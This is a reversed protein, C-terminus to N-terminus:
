LPGWVTPIIMEMKWILYGLHSLLLHSAQPWMTLRGSSLTGSRGVCSINQCPLWPPQQPGELGKQLPIPSFILEAKQGRRLGIHMGTCGPLQGHHQCAGARCSHGITGAMWGLTTKPKQEDAFFFFDNRNVLMETLASQPRLLLASPCLLGLTLRGSGRSADM